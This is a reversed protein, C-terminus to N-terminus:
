KYLDTSLYREGNSPSVTVVKKGSGLKRAVVIAAYVNAGTSIGVFLGQNKALWRATEFADEDNM